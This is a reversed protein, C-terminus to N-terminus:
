TRSAYWTTFIPQIATPCEVHIGTAQDPTASLADQVPNQNGPSISRDITRLGRSGM